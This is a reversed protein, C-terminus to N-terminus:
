CDLMTIILIHRIRCCSNNRKTYSCRQVLMFYLSFKITITLKIKIKHNIHRFCKLLLRDQHRNIIIDRFTRFINTYTSNDFYALSPIISMHQSNSNGWIGIRASLRDQKSRWHHWTPNFLFIIVTATINMFVHIFCSADLVQYHSQAISIFVNLVQRCDIKSNFVILILIIPSNKPLM